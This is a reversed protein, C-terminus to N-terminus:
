TLRQRLRLMRAHKLFMRRHFLKDMGVEKLDEDTADPVYRMEACLFM